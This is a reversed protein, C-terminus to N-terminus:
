LEEPSGGLDALDLIKAAIEEGVPVYGPRTGAPVLVRL